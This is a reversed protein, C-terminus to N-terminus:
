VQIIFKHFLHSNHVLIEIPGSLLLFVIIEFIIRCLLIGDVAHNIIKNQSLFFRSQLLLKRRTVTNYYACLFTDKKCFMIERLIFGHELKCIVAQDPDLLRSSSCRRRNENIM